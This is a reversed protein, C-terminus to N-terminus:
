EVVVQKIIESINKGAYRLSVLFSLLSVPIIVLAFTYMIIDVPLQLSMVLESMLNNSYVIEYAVLISGLVGALYGLLALHTSEAVFMSAVQLKSMGLARLVGIEWQREHITTIIVAIQGLIAIIIAFSFLTNLLNELFEISSSAREIYEHISVVQVDYEEGIEGLIENAVISANYKEDVKVFYRFAYANQGTINEYTSISVLIDTGSVKNSFRTFIFGPANPIIGVVKLIVTKKMVDLRIEDGIKVGIKKALGESIIVTLNGNLDSFYADANKVFEKIFSSQVYATPDIGYLNISAKEWFVVDGVTVSLKNTVPCVSVVGKIRSINETLNLPLPEQAYVVIDAGASLKISDIISKEQTKMLFGILLLASVSMAIMFFALLARRRRRLLNISSLSLGARGIRSLIKKLYVIIKPFLGTIIFLVSVLMAGLSAFIVIFIAGIESITSILPLIVIFLTMSTFLGVGLIVLEMIPSEPDIKKEIKEFERIRRAAPNLAEIPQIRTALYAPYIGGIISVIFGIIAGIYMSRPDIFMEIEIEGLRQRIQSLFLYESLPIGLLAGLLTGIFGIVIAETLFLEFISIPGMGLSRLIGIERIREYLNMTITSIILIIAMLMATSAFTNLMTKQIEIGEGVRKLVEAKILVVIFDFGLERQIKEGITVIRNLSGEIDGPDIVNKELKVFAINAMGECNMMKQATSLSVFIVSKIDIPLKGRQRVVGAIKLSYFRIFGYSDKYIVTINGGVIAGLPDFLDELVLCSNESLDMEGGVVEFEGIFKDLEPDIGVVAYRVTKENNITIAGFILRPAAAYVGEISMIKEAVESANFFIPPAKKQILIDFDGIYDTYAKLSSAVIAKSATDIAVYLSVTLMVAIIAIATRTKRRWINRLAM